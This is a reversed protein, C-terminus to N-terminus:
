YRCGQSQCILSIDCKRVLIKTKYQLLKSKQKKYYKEAHNKTLTYLLRPISLKKSNLTICCEMYM